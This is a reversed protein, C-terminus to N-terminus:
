IFVQFVILAVMQNALYAIRLVLLVYIILNILKPLVNVFKDMLFFHYNVTLLFANLEM